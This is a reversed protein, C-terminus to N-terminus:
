HGRRDHPLLPDHGSRSPQGQEGIPAPNKRYQGLLAFFRREKIEPMEQVYRRPIERKLYRAFLEKLQLDTFKKHLHKM